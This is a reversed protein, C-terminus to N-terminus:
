ILDHKRKLHLVREVISGITNVGFFYTLNIIFFIIPHEIDFIFGFLITNIIACVLKSLKHVLAYESKRTM